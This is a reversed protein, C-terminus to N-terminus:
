FPWSRSVLPEFCLRPLRPRWGHGPHPPIRSAEALSMRSLARAWARMVASPRRCLGSYAAGQRDSRGCRPVVDDEGADHFVDRDFSGDDVSLSALRGAHRGHYGMALPFSLRGRRRRDPRPWDARAPLDTVGFRFDTSPRHTADRDPSPGVGVLREARSGPIATGPIM